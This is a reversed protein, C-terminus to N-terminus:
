RFKNIRKLEMYCENLSALLGFEYMEKDHLKRKKQVDRRKGLSKQLMLLFDIHGKILLILLNFKKARLFKIGMYTAYLFSVIFGKPVNYWDFNKLITILRNRAENYVSLPGLKLKLGSWMSHYAIAEPVYLVKFGSLWLRYGFDFEEVYMFYDEDFGGLSLFVDKKVLMACGPPALNYKSVNYKDSDEDGYGINYGGGHPCMKCGAVQVTNNSEPFLIKGGCAAIKTDQYFVEILKILWNKDLITDPNIFAVLEGKALSAARNNGAAYGYNKEFKITRVWPFNKKVFEVSEDTSDNDAIIVELKDFSYNLQEISDLCTKLDNKSNYSLIIISVFPLKNEKICTKDKVFDFM